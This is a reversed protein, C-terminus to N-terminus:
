AGAGRTAETKNIFAFLVKDALREVSHSSLLAKPNERQGSEM